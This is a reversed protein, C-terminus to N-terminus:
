RIVEGILYHPTGKAQKFTRMVYEGVIGLTGLVLGLISIVLGLLSIVLRGHALWIFAAGCVGLGAFLFLAGLLEIAQFPRRAYGTFISMFQDIQMWIDYRSEGHVRQVHRVPVEAYKLGLVSVTATVFGGIDTIQAIEQAAANTYGKFPCGMDSQVCDARKAIFHNVIRSPLKRRLASDKRNMRVGSVVDYGEKLKSHILHIDDPDNQLDADLTIIWRGRSHEFGAITAPTQGYNKRLRVVVIEPHARKLGALIALSGDKSGDDVFLVEYRVGLRSLAEHLRAWLRPLNGEENFVPIVISLEPAPDANTTMDNM